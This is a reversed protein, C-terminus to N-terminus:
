FKAQSQIAFAGMKSKLRLLFKQKKISFILDIKLDKKLCNKLDIKSLKKAENKM